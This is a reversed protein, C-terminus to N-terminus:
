HLAHASERYSGQGPRNAALAFDALAARLGHDRAERSLNVLAFRQVDDLASWADQALRPLGLRKMATRLTLPVRVRASWTRPDSQVSLLPGLRLADLTFELYLRIRLIANPVGCDTDLLIQRAALPLGCWQALSLQIGCLDLKMRVRLPMYELTREMYGEFAFVGAVPEHDM